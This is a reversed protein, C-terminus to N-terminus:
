MRQAFDAVGVIRGRTKRLDNIGGDFGLGVAEGQM